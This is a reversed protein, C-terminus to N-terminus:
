EQTICFPRRVARSVVRDQIAGFRKRAPRGALAEPVALEWAVRPGHASVILLSPDSYCTLARTTM